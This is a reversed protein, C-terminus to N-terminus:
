IGWRDRAIADEWMREVVWSGSKAYRGRGLRLAEFTYEHGSVALSSQIYFRVLHLASASEGKPMGGHLVIYPTEAFDVRQRSCSGSRADM